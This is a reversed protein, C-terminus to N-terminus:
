PLWCPPPAKDDQLVAVYQLQATKQVKQQLDNVQAVFQEFMSAGAAGAIAMVVLLFYTAARWYSSVGSPTTSTTM